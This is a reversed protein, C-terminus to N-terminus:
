KSNEQWSHPVALTWLPFHEQKSRKNVAPWFASHIRLVAGQVYLAQLLAAIIKGWQAFIQTWKKFLCASSSQEFQFPYIRNGKHTQLLFCLSSWNVPVFVNQMSQEFRNEYQSENKVWHQCTDCTWAKIAGCIPLPCWVFDGRLDDWRPMLSPEPFSVNHALHLSLVAFLVFPSKKEGRSFSFKLMM